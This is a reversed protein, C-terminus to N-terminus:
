GFLLNSQIYERVKPDCDQREAVDGNTQVPAEETHGMLLNSQIYRLVEPDTEQQTCASATGILSLSIIITAFTKKM